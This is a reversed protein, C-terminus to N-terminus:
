RNETIARLIEGISWAQAFCGRPTFPEKADFIESIQGLTEKRLHYKLAEKIKDVSYEGSINLRKSATIFAGLPWAWVIGQHYATDRNWIDGTYTDKYNEDQPSLSRLGVRTYLHEAVKNFVNEAKAGSIVPFNLSLAFIQNPRISNDKKDENIVDYLYNGEKYWFEKLFSEKVRKALTSYNEELKLMKSLKNMIMIANYWLANIEVAKGYRPTVAYDGIKADMWTLQTKENGAYILGDEDMYIQETNAATIEEKNMCYRNFIEKLKPYVEKTFERDNTYALYNYAAEFFWLPADVTNYGPTEGFDPFVNPLLGNKMYKMFTKLIDKADDFRKTALTLGTLSILTDRGWDTFWPYGALITKGGTSKKETIFADAAKVLSNALSDEYGAREILEAARSQAKKYEYEINYEVNNETTLVMNIEKEEFPNINCYFYGPMFHNETNNLGREAEVRYFMSYFVDKREKFNLEPSKMKLSQEVGDGFKIEIYNENNFISFSTFDKREGHYDRFNALPCIQFYAKKSGNKIKYKVITTNQGYVMFIQKRISLGNMLYSWTPFFNNQFGELHKYGKGMYNGTCEFASLYSITNDFEIIEHLNSVILHRSVPPNFSAILLGHYRRTNIGSITGSAFGGIGNTLLWERRLSSDINAIEDKTFFM